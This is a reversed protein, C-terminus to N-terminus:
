KKWFSKSFVVLVTMIELRGLIMAACLIYKAGPTFFAYNGAASIAKTAGPGTNTVSAVAAALSTSLDYGSLNLALAVGGITALFSFIYVFVSNVAKDPVAADGIKVPVVQHPEISAIMVKKFYAKLVQWRMVKISGTTSGICGGHLSLLMFFVATWMGWDLYDASSLGTTTMVAVINFISYRVAKFFHIHNYFTLYLALFLTFILIARLFYKIQALRLKDAERKRILIIYFTMPLAGSIMFVTLVFEILASDYYAISTNKTSFGATAVASLAHNLADFKGMGCFYLAVACLSVLTLYVCIIWKALDIFKPMLKDGTESNEHTFMQMGGIGLFPLMAVAFIVIGIGGLGNLMSRWLLVSRPLIEVDEIVTAGTATVGSISEFLASTVDNIAGSLVFPLTSFIGVSVWCVLTILYGQRLSISNIKHKNSLFFMLGTFLTILMSTLFPSWSSQADYFDFFAPVIMSLGLISLVFGDIMLVPQWM